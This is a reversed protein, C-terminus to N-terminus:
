LTGNRLVDYGAVGSGGANDTSANWRLSISNATQTPSNLGTPVSPPTIDAAGGGCAGLSTWWGCSPCFNPPINAGTIQSQYLTDQFVVRDGPHYLTTANWAEVRTCNATQAMAAPSELVLTLLAALLLLRMQRM